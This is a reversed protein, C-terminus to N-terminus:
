FAQQPSVARTSQCRDIIKRAIKVLVPAILRLAVTLGGDISIFLIKL